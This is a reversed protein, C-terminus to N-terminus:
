IKNLEDLKDTIDRQTNPYLHGYTNMTTTVNEHGLRQSIAIPQVGMHILLAAHSHRLDHVRIFPVDAKLMHRRMKNQVAKAGIPFLRQNPAIKYITNVYQQLENTLFHPMEVTRISKETKPTTIIDKKNKRYYTKNINIQNNEFDIDAYTLALLEGCRMGTWFLLEFLVFYYDSKNFTAIFLRYQDLTWFQLENANAKGIKDVKKCPNSHLDYFREAHSFLATVQNQLMRQYTESFGMDIMANQWDLIDKTTIENMKKGTFYPIVRSDVMYKKTHYTREKLRNKKDEFYCNVFDDFLMSMDHRVKRKYNAEYEEAERKTRFGRKHFRKGDVNINAEWKGNDLKRAPM